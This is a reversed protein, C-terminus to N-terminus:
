VFLDFMFDFSNSVFESVARISGMIMSGAAEVTSSFTNKVVDEISDYTNVITNVAAGLHKRFIILAAVAIFAGTSFPTSAFASKGLASGVKYAALSTAGMLGIATPAYKLIENNDKREYSRSEYLDKKILSMQDYLFKEKDHDAKIMTLEAEKKQIEQKLIGNEKEFVIKMEATNFELKKILEQRHQVMDGQSIAESKSDYIMLDEKLSNLPTFNTKVVECEGNDKNVITSVYAGSERLIDKHTSVELVSNFNMFYKKHPNSENDVI